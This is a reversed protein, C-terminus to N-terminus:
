ARHAIRWLSMLGMSPNQMGIYFSIMRRASSRISQGFGHRQGM